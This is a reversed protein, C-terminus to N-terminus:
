NFLVFRAILYMVVLGIAVGIAIGKILSERSIRKFPSIPSCSNGNPM